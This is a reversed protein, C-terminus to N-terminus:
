PNYMAGLYYRYTAPQKVEQGFTCSADALHKRLSLTEYRYPFILATGLGSGADCPHRVSPKNVSPSRDIYRVPVDNELGLYVHPYETSMPSILYLCMGVKSIRKVLHVPDLPPRKM